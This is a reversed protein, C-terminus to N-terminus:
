KPGMLSRWVEAVAPRMKPRPRRGYCLLWEFFSTSSRTTQEPAGHGYFKFYNQGGYFNTQLDGTMAWEQDMGFSSPAFSWGQSERVEVRCAQAGRDPDQRSDPHESLSSNWPYKGTAARSFAVAQNRACFLNCTSKEFFIPLM